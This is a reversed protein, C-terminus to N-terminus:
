NVTSIYRHNFTDRKSEPPIEGDLVATVVYDTDEALQKLFLAINRVLASFFIKSDCYSLIHVKNSVNCDIRKHELSASCYKFLNNETTADLIAINQLM